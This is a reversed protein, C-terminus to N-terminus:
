GRRFQSPTKGTESSFARTFSATEAYGARQAIQLISLDTERLQRGAISCRKRRLIARFTTNERKLRRRLTEESMGLRAAVLRCSADGAEILGSLLQDVERAVSGLEHGAPHALQVYHKLISLLHPDHNMGRRHQDEKRLVLANSPQEFYVPCGFMREYRSRRGACPHEFYVEQPAHKEHLFLKILRHVYGLSFEVDHRRPQLEDDSITYHVVPHPSREYKLATVGQISFVSQSFASIASDLSPSFLFIHGVAGILEPGMRDSLDLGLTPNGVDGALRDLIRMYSALPVSANIGQLDGASLGENDLLTARQAAGINVENLIASLVRAHIVPRPFAAADDIANDSLSPPRHLVM